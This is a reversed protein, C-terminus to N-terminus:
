LRRCAIELKHHSPHSLGLPILNPTQESTRVSLFLIAITIGLTSLDHFDNIKHGHQGMGYEWLVSM